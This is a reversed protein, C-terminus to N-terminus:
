LTKDQVGELKKLFQEIRKYSRNKKQKREGAERTKSKRRQDISVFM